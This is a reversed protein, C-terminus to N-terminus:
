LINESRGEQKKNEGMVATRSAKAKDLNGPHFQALNTISTLKTISTPCTQFEAGTEDLDYFQDWTGPFNAINASV